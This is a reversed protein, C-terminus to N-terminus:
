WSREYLFGDRGEREVYGMAAISRDAESREPFHRVFEDFQRNGFTTVKAFTARPDLGLKEASRYLLSVVPLAEKIYLLTAAIATATLGIDVLDPRAERVALAAM